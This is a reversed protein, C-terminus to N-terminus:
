PPSVVQSCDCMKYDQAYPSLMTEKNAKTKIIGHSVITHPLVDPAIM